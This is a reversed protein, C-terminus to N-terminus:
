STTMGKTCLSGLNEPQRFDVRLSPPELQTWTPRATLPDKTPTQSEFAPGVPGTMATLRGAQALNTDFKL